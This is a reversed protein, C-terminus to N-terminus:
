AGGSGAWAAGGESVAGAWAASQASGSPPAWPATARAWVGCMTPPPAPMAACCTAGAAACCACTMAQMRSTRRRRCPKTSAHAASNDGAELCSELKAHWWSSSCVGMCASSKCEFWCAQQTCAWGAALMWLGAPCCGLPLGRGRGVKEDAEKREDASMMGWRSGAGGKGTVFEKENERRDIEARVQAPM